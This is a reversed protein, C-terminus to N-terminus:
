NISSRFDIESNLREMFRNNIKDEKQIKLFRKDKLNKYEWKDENPGRGLTEKYEPEPEKKEITLEDISQQQQQILMSLQKRADDEIKIKLFRKLITKCIIDDTSIIDKEIDKTDRKIIISM